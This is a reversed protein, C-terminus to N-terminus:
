PHTSARLRSAVSDTFLGEFFPSLHQSGHTSLHQDDVYWPGGSDAVTCRQLDCMRMAIDIVEVDSISRLPKLVDLVVRNRAQYEAMTPAIINNVDRGTHKAVFLAEPVDYGVEPIPAIVVVQRGMGRLEDVTRELGLAFLDSDTWEGDPRSSGATLSVASASDSRYGHGEAFVSWRAALIIKHLSPRARVYKLVDENFAACSPLGPVAHWHVEIGTLPPCGSEVAEYGGVKHISAATSFGPALAAAHSDGWLLFTPPTMWGLTCLGGQDEPRRDDCARSRAEVYPFRQPLGDQNDIFAGILVTVTMVAGALEFIRRRPVRMSRFPQEVFRWALTALVITASLLATLVVGNMERILLYRTFVILPWHLLYLSYSILGIFVLPRAALVRTILADSTTGACVLMAAGITPGLAAIGPFRTDSNYELVSGVILLIGVWALASRTRAQSPEPLVGSAVIAGVILEWARLPAFYFAAVPRTYTAYVDLALSAFACIFLWLGFRSRGFRRIAILVLPFLIYFQEEVALSWTHLLPKADALADFYGSERWFLLNSVFMTVGVASEATAKLHAPTLLLGAAAGTLGITLFLAPFIRRIRREYFRAVSFTQNEIERLIITAILYGSIVFFVDVGVYGGSFHSVGAHYLLVSLVAVGRLGDIDARYSPRM